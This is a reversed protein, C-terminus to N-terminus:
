SKAALQLAELSNQIIDKKLDKTIFVIRTDRDESPWEPLKVPHHFIHQVGHIALPQEEGDINIIGKIRLLNEGRHTILTQIWAVFAPWELPEEYRICFSSIGDGHRDPDHSHEHEGHPHHAHDHAHDHSRTTNQDRLAEERLWEKVDFTKTEPDYLGCGFLKDPKIDGKTVRYIKATPNISHLRSELDNLQEEEAMDTKTIVIRDAVAAQKRPEEHRDLQGFGFVADSTSIVGDLYFRTAIIPDNILTHLIPAPDALGTTEILVRKFKAVEGKVRKLFLERLVRTLDGQITCCICGTTLEVLDEDVTDVLDHDIGIDGFENVLVATKSMDEHKLLSNLLTTKGSGLWGTLLSVQIADEKNTETNM